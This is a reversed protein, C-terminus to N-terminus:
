NGIAFYNGALGTGTTFSTKSLATIYFDHHILQDTDNLQPIFFVNLCNNPFAIPFTYPSSTSASGWQQIMGSVPDKWYGNTGASLTTQPLAAWGGNGYLVYGQQAAAPAPVLGKAGASSSTAGTFVQVASPISRVIWQATNDTVTNGDAPWTPITSGTTGAVTCVAVNGSLGQGYITKGVNVSTNSTWIFDIGLQLATVKHPNSYNTLHAMFAALNAGYWSCLARLDTIDSVTISTANAPVKVAYLPVYGSDATPQVPSAAPTGEKIVIQGLNQNLGSAIVVSNTDIPGVEVLDIRPNSANAAAFTLTIASAGDYYTRQGLSWATGSGTINITMNPTAPLTYAFDTLNLVGTGIFDSALAKFATKGYKIHDFWLSSIYGMFGFKREEFWHLFLMPPNM